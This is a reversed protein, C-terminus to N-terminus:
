RDSRAAALAANELRRMEDRESTTRDSYGALHLVGHVALRALEESLTVRYELAQRRAQDLCIYIDGELRDNDTLDFTLVDTTGPIGSFQRHLRAMERDDVIVLNVRGFAARTRRAGALVTDLLLSKRFRARPITSHVEYSGGARRRGPLPDSM